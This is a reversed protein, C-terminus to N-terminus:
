YFRERKSRWSNRSYCNTKGKRERSSIKEGQQKKTEEDLKQIIDLLAKKQAEIDARRKGLDQSIQDKLAQLRKGFAVDENHAEKLQEHANELNHLIGTRENNESITDETDNSLQDILEDLRTKLENKLSEVNYKTVDESTVTTTEVVKTTVKTTKTTAAKKRRTPKSGRTFSIKIRPQETDHELLNGDYLDDDEDDFLTVWIDRTSNGAHSKFVSPDFSVSGIKGSNNLSKVTVRLIIGEDTLDLVLRHDTDDVIICDLDQNDSSIFCGIQAKEITQNSVEIDLVSFDFQDRQM